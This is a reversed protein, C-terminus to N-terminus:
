QLCLLNALEYISRTKLKFAEQLRFLNALM